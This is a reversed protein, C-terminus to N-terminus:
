IHILSLSFVELESPKYTVDFYFVIEKQQIADAIQRDTTPKVIGDPAKWGPFSVRLFEMFQRFEPRDIWLNGTECDFLQVNFIMYYYLPLNSVSCLYQGESVATNEKQWEAFQLCANTWEEMTPHDSLSIGYYDM